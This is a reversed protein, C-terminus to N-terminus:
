SSARSIVTTLKQHPSEMVQQKNNNLKREQNYLNIFKHKLESEEGLKKKLNKADDVL